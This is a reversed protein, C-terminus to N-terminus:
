DVGLEVSYDGDVIQVVLLVDNVIQLVGLFNGKWGVVEGIELFQFGIMFVGM